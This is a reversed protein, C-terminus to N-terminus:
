TITLMRYKPHRFSYGMSEIVHTVQIGISKLHNVKLLGGSIKGVNYRIWEYQSEFSSPCSPPPTFEFPFSHKGPQLKGEVRDEEKWVMMSDNLFVDKSKYYTVNDRDTGQETWRVEAPNTDYQRSRNQRNIVV